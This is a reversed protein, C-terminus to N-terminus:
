KNGGQIEKLYEEYTPINHKKRESESAERVDGCMTCQMKTAFKPFTTQPQYDHKGDNLCDAKQADYYFSITTQFVFSKGCKDCEMQHDVNEEYGFGDDHCIELEADCYPCNLDSM